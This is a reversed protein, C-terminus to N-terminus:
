KELVTHAWQHKSTYMEFTFTRKEGNYRSNIIDSYAQEKACSLMCNGKYHAILALFCVRGDRRHDLPEIWHWGPSALTLEKIIAFIADNDQCYDHGVLPM